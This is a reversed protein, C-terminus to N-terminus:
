RVGLGKAIDDIAQEIRHRETSHLLGEFEAAAKLVFTMRQNIDALNAIPNNSFEITRGDNLSRCQSALTLEIAQAVGSPIGTVYSLHNGRLLSVLKPDTYMTPQLINRQEHDALYEVSKAINGADIAEFAQLIERYDTGFRLKDQEIPWLVPSQANGYINKRLRLCTKLSQFGKDKYFAHLPFVDLFLTTNGMAMMEYVHQYLQQVSSLPEGESRIDVSPVPNNRNAKEYEKQRKEYELFKARREREETSFLGWVGARASTRLHEAAEYEAQIKEISESAHLLGCGVQKSAFAALGAWQFRHDSQWLQAYAANIMQNRVKPDAILKGSPAIFDEAQKQYFRWNKECASEITETLGSSAIPASAFNQHISFSQQGWAPNAPSSSATTSPQNHRPAMVSNTSEYSFGFDSPILGAYCPCGSFSDLSGAVLVGENIFSPVGGQIQYTKGTVGCTVSDGQRASPLGEIIFESDGTLVQGGCTTKDGIRILHGLVM